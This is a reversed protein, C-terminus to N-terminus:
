GAHAGWEAFARDAAAVTEDLDAASHASSVFGAEFASPALYVGQDLMKHFFVRFRAVDSRKAGQFDWVPQGSLFVGFMGGLSGGVLPVGHRQAAELFGAVLRTTAQGLRTYFDPERRLIRLTTLGAAVAVPNGSLTGAQYV